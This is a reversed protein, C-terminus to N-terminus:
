LNQLGVAIQWCFHNIAKNCSDEDSLPFMTDIKFLDIEEIKICRIFKWIGIGYKNNSKKIYNNLMSFTTPSIDTLNTQKHILGTLTHYRSYYSGNSPRDWIIIGKIKEDITLPSKKGFPFIENKNLFNITDCLIEDGFSTSNNFLNTQLIVDFFKDDVDINVMEETNTFSQNTLNEFHKKIDSYSESRPHYKYHQNIVNIRELIISHILASLLNESKDNKIFYILLTAWTKPKLKLNLSLSKSMFKLLLKENNIMILAGIIKDFKKITWDLMLLNEVIKDVGFSGIKDICMDSDSNVQRQKKIAMYYYNVSKLKSKYLYYGGLEVMADICGGDAALLYYLHSDDFEDDYDVCTEKFCSVLKDLNEYSGNKIAIKYYKLAEKFKGKDFYHDGMRNIAPSYKGMASIKYYILSRKYNDVINLYYNGMSYMSKSYNSCKKAMDYYKEAENVKSNDSYYNALMVMSKPDNLDIGVKYCETMKDYNKEIRNYYEAIVRITSFKKPDNNNQFYELSSCSFINKGVQFHKWKVNRDLVKLFTYTEDREYRSKIKVHRYKCSNDYCIDLLNSVCIVQFDNYISECLYGRDSVVVNIHSLEQESSDNSEQESCSLEKESSDNSEQESCSLEKESSDNSEQESNNNSECFIYQNTTLSKGIDRNNELQVNKETISMSIISNLSM